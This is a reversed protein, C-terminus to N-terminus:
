GIGFDRERLVIKEENESFEFYFKQDYQSSFYSEM